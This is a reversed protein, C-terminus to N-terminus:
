RRRIIYYLVNPLLKLVAANRTRQLPISKPLPNGDAGLPTITMRNDANLFSVTAHIDRINWPGTGMATIVHNRVTFGFPKERTMVQLLMKKSVGLPRNDMAVLMITGFTNASQIVITGLRVKGAKSLFGIVGRVQPSNVRVVGLHYNWFLQGTAAAVTGDRYNIYRSCNQWHISSYTSGETRVLRGVDFLLPNFLQDQGPTTLKGDSPHPIKGIWQADMTPPGAAASGNLSFLRKLSLSESVVIPGRALLGRRFILAAAPFQAIVAPSCDQFEKMHLDVLTDSGVCFFNLASLGELRGYCSALMVGDARWRNPNDFGIESMCTPYGRESIINFPMATPSLVAARSRFSQGKQVAWAAFRGTHPGAFYGHHDMLDGPQYTYREIADLTRADATIWNSASVMGRYHLGRHLYDAMNKYFSRQLHALFRVQDCIRRRLQPLKKLAQGTMFWADYLGMIGAAPNDRKNKVNGWARQAWALSGCRHKLWWAYQRELGRWTQQSFNGRSFTWFLLSEENQVEVIALAPNNELPVHNYPDPTTLLESLWQQYLRQLRPEFELLGFPHQGRKYGTFGLRRADLWLVYYCSLDLYIGQRKLAYVLYQLRHLKRMSIHPTGPQASLLNGHFRVINVGCRALRRAMLRIYAKPANINNNGVGVGWFRVPQGSGLVFQNGKRRVYGHQGATSENLYRLNLGDSSPPADPSPNWCFWRPMANQLRRGPRLKGQPFFNGRVLTFCDYAANYRQGPPTIEVLRLGHVGRSLTVRGLYVWDAPFFPRVPTEDILAESSTCTKWPQHDFHWEFPGYQGCKRVWFRWTGGHTLTITYNAFLPTSGAKGSFTLWQGGSLKAKQTPSSASLWTHKPFNTAAPKEAQWWIFRPNGMAATVGLYCALAVAAGWLNGAWIFHRHAFIM